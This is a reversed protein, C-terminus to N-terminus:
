EAGTLNPEPADVDDIALSCEDVRLPLREGEIQVLVYPEVQTVRGKRGLFSSWRARVIVPDGVRM